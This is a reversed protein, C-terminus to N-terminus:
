KRLQLPELVGYIRGRNKELLCLLGPRQSGNDVANTDFVKIFCLYSARGTGRIGAAELLEAHKGDTGNTQKPVVILGEVEEYHDM